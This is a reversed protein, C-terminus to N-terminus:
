NFASAAWGFGVISCILFIAVNIGVWLDHLDTEKGQKAMVTLWVYGLILPLFGIFQIKM